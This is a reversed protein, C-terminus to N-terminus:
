LSQLYSLDIGPVALRERHLHERLALGLAAWCSAAASGAPTRFISPTKGAQIRSLSNVTARAAPCSLELGNPAVLDAANNALEAPAWVCGDDM